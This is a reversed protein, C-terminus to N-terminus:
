ESCTLPADDILLDDLWMDFAPQPTPQLMAFLTLGFTLSTLTPGETQINMMTRPPIDGGMEMSGTMTTARTVRWLVCFWTNTPAPTGNSSSSDSWQNYLTTSAAMLFISNENDSVHETAIMMEANNGAAPLASLRVFARVHVTPSGLALTTYETIYSRQGTNPAPLSAISFRVSSAGTHAVSTDITVSGPAAGTTDWIPALTPSEFGDCLQRTCADGDSTGDGVAGDLEGPSFGLRGCGVLAFAALAIRL